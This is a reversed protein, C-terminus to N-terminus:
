CTPDVKGPHLHAVAAAAAKSDCIKYVARNWPLTPDVLVVKGDTRAYVCFRGLREPDPGAADAFPRYTREAQRERLGAKWKDFVKACGACRPELRPDIPRM